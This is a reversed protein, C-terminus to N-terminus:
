RGISIYKWGLGALLEKDFQNRGDVLIPSRVSAALEEFSVDRFEEWQTCLAICDAGSAAEGASSCVRVGPCRALIKEGVKPDYARVKAGLSELSDIIEISPASRLDDTHPKFALGWIAITKGTIDGGLAGTIKSIFRRIQKDNMHDVAELLEVAAGTEKGLSILSQIDKSFCSGGYGLGAGLFAKKGIRDDLKMAAAVETVDAGISECIGAISNIFSIQTALYANSAYKILEATNWDTWVFPCKAWGYIEELSKRVFEEPHGQGIVIRQPDWFDEMSKGQALFEPNSLVFIKKDPVQTKFFADAMQATGLPVTSKNIVIAQNKLFPVLSSLAGKYFRLDARGDKGEPTGVCIIWIDPLTDLNWQDWFAITGLIIAQSLAEELGKEYFPVKGGRLSNIKNKDIDVVQVGFGKKALGVAYTLGVPGAGVIGVTM